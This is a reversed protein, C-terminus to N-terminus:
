SGDGGIGLMITNLAASLDVPEEDLQDERPPMFDGYRHRGFKVGAELNRLRDTDVPKSGSPPARLPLGLAVSLLGCLWDVVNPPLPWDHGNLPTRAVDFYVAERAKVELKSLREATDDDVCFEERGVEYGADVPDPPVRSADAGIPGGSWQRLAIGYTAAQDAVLRLHFLSQSAFSTEYQNVFRRADLAVNEENEARLYGRLWEIQEETFPRDEAESDDPQEQAACVGEIFTLLEATAEFWEGSTRSSAFRRHLQQEDERGGRMSGLLVFRRPNGTQMGRMRAHPNTAHGIKVQGGDVDERIFYVWSM